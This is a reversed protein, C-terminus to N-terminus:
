RPLGWSMWGNQGFRNWKFMRWVSTSNAELIDLIAVEEPTPALAIAISASTLEAVNEQCLGPINDELWRKSTSKLMHLTEATRGTLLCNNRLHNVLQKQLPGMPPEGDWVRRSTYYAVGAAVLGVMLPIRWARSKQLAQLGMAQGLRSTILAARWNLLGAPQEAAVILSTKWTQQIAVKDAVVQLLRYPLSPLWAVPSLWKPLGVKAVDSM